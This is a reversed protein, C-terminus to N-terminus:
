SADNNLSMFYAKLKMMQDTPYKNEVTGRTVKVFFDKSAENFGFNTSSLIVENYAKITESTTKKTDYAKLEELEKKLINEPELNEKLAQIPKTENVVQTKKMSNFQHQELKAILGFEM